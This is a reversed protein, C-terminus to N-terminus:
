EAVHQADQLRVGDLFVVEQQRLLVSAPVRSGQWLRAEAEEAGVILARGRSIDDIPSGLFALGGAAHDQVSDHHFYNLLPTARGVPNSGTAKPEPPRRRASCCPHPLM